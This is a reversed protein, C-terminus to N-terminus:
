VITFISSMGTIDLISKVTVNPSAVLMKGGAAMMAKQAKMLIRLGASSIYELESFDFTVERVGEFSLAAELDPSTNTDLRGQVKLTLKGDDLTKEIQM